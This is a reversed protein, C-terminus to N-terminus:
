SNNQGLSNYYAMCKHCSGDSSVWEPHDRKITKIVWEKADECTKIMDQEVEKKCVPCQKKM